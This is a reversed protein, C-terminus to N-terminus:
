MFSTPKRLAGDWKKACHHSLNSEFIRPRVIRLIVFPRVVLNIGWDITTRTMLRELWSCAQMSGWVDLSITFELCLYIICIAVVYIYIYIHIVYICAYICWVHTTTLPMSIYYSICREREIYIYIYIHIYVSLSLSFHTKNNIPRQGRRAARPPAIYYSLIISIIRYSPMDWTLVLHTRLIFHLIAHLIVHLIVHLTVRLIAHYSISVYCLVIRHTM